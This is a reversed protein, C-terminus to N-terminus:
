APMIASGQFLLSYEVWQKFLRQPKCVHDLLVVINYNLRGQLVDFTSKVVEM